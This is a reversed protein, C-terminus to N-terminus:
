TENVKQKLGSGNCIPCIETHYSSQYDCDCIEIKGVGDCNKCATNLEDNVEYATKLDALKIAYEESIKAIKADREQTLENYQVKIQKLVLTLNLGGDQM